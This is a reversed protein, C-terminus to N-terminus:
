DGSSDLLRSLWHMINLAMQRNDIGPVNMGMPMRMPGLVQASLQGAEGLVVVRGKGYPLALGQSHGAIPFSKGDPGSRDTATEGMTLFSVSDAPGVLSQGTFTEIRGLRESENRGRTIPHDGLLKNARSFVLQSPGRGSNKPDIAVGRSMEVGFRDSLEAAASGMPPHDSILLVAGGARVWDRVADCEDDTFAPRDSGPSGMGEAGLANAIVLIDAKELSSRTFAERNPVVQYGDSAILDAFPKYRGGATHFNHHAEDFLVRPHTETYAPRAVKTNFDRDARQGFMGARAALFQVAAEADALTNPLKATDFPPGLMREYQARQTETLVRGIRRTTANWADRTERRAKAAAARFEPTDLEKRAAELSGARDEVKLGAPLPVASAKMMEAQGAEVIPRIQEVQGASLGLRKQFDNALFAVPGELQLQIQDLRERQKPELVGLAAAQFQQQLAQVAARRKEVDEIGRAALARERFREFLKPSEAAEKQAATLKLEEQIPEARFLGMKPMSTPVTGVDQLRFADSGPGGPPAQALSTTGIAAALVLAISATRLM